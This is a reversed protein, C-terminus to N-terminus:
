DSKEPLRLISGRHEDLDPASDRIQPDDYASLKIPNGQTRLPGLDPDLSEVIMNRAVMQPDVIVDAGTRFTM